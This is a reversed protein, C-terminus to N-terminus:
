ELDNAKHLRDLVEAMKQPCTLGYPRHGGMVNMQAIVYTHYCHVCFLFASGKKTTVNTCLPPKCIGRCGNCRKLVTSMPRRTKQSPGLVSPPHQPSFFVPNIWKM